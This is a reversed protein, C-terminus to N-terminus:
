LFLYVGDRLSHHLVPVLVRQSHFSTGQCQQHPKFREVKSLCGSRLSDYLVRSPFPFNVQRAPAHLSRSPVSFSGFFFAECGFGVLAAMDDDLAM